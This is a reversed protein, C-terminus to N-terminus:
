VYIGKEVHFIKWRRRNHMFYINTLVEAVYSIARTNGIEVVNKAMLELHETIEFFWNCYDNFVKRRVCFLNYTYQYKGYIIDLYSDYEKPHITQLSSLLAHLVDRSVFRSFQTVTNPFCIYPLPLIADTEGTLMEPNVLLHRRYHELGVWEHNTNKWIWYAASMECYQKNKESINEGTNDTREAIREGTLAAGAQISKEYTQLVPPNKLLKDRHNRVEYMVFDIQEQQGTKMGAIPFCGLSDFYASMLIYEEHQTLVFIKEFGKKKLDALVEAQFLETVGVVVASTRPVIDIEWVPIDEIEEPNGKMSSVAFCDPKRGCLRLIACYAGYAVVQAGYIVYRDTQEIWDALFISKM